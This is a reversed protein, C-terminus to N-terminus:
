GGGLQPNRITSQPNRSHLYWIGSVLYTGFVPHDFCFAKEEISPIEFKLTATEEGQCDPIKIQPFSKNM